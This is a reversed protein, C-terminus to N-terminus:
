NGLHCEQGEKRLREVESIPTGYYNGVFEASELLEGNKKAQEFEEKTVFHYNIGDVEGPRQKRTTM